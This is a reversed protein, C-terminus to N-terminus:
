YRIDLTNKIDALPNTNHIVLDAFKGPELSGLASERAITQASGMTAAWLTEGPTWGSEVYAQMEWQTGLGPIDGHAGL